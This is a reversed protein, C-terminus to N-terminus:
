KRRQSHTAADISRNHCGIWAPEFFPPIISMLLFAASAAPPEPVGLIKELQVLGFALHHFQSLLDALDDALALLALPQSLLLQGRPDIRAL